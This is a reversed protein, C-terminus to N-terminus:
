RNVQSSLIVDIAGISQGLLKQMTVVLVSKGMCTGAVWYKEGHLRIKVTEGSIIPQLPKVHHNLCNQQKHRKGVIARTDEEIPYSPTLLTGAGTPTDQLPM